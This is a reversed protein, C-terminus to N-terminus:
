LTDGVTFDETAVGDFNFTGEVGRLSLIDYSRSLNRNFNITIDAREFWKDNVLEPSYLVDGSGTVAMGAIRIQELNQAIQLGDRLTSAFGRCNPGYFSAQVDFLENTSLVGSEDGQTFWPMNETRRNLISFGCWNINISPRPPADIQFGPKVLENSIGTIGALVDHIFDDLASDDLAINTPTLYGGTASTNTM